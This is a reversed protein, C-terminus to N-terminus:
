RPKGSLREKGERYAVDKAVARSFSKWPDKAPDFLNQLRVYLPNEVPHGGDNPVALRVSYEAEKEAENYMRMSVANLHEDLLVVSGGMVPAAEETDVVWGGTNYVHTWAPYGEFQWLGEFPKHTHGFVFTVEAPLPGKLEGEMQTKLPKALYERLGQEADADLAKERRAREGASLKDYLWHALGKLFLKELTDTPIGPIDEYEAIVEAREYLFEKLKDPNTMKEYIIEMDKGVEGSRGAMSWFFDIWAFNEGEIEWIIEPKPREPFLKSKLFTMLHYISEVYHGHHFIVCKQKDPTILGFNPYATGIVFRKLHPYRQVLRTLFYNTLPPEDELFMNTTHWPMDLETGPTKTMIHEVYQTERASEWLHHDHNGPVFFIRDFMKKSKPMILEIFREFGMAAENDSALAFELIDGMLILTPKTKTENKKILFRICEVLQSLTPSAQSWDINWTGEKLCTLVSDEEGLHMDSIVVYRIDPM